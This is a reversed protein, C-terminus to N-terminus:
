NGSHLFTRKLNLRKKNVYYFKIVEKVTRNPLHAAIKVFDKNVKKFMQVFIEEESPLWASDLKHQTEWAKPNEMLRNDEKYRWETPGGARIQLPPEDALSRLYRERLDWPQPVPPPKYKGQMKKYVQMLEDDHEDAIVGYEYLHARWTVWRKTYEEELRAQERTLDHRAAKLHAKLQPLFAEHTEVNERWFSYELPSVIPESVPADAPMLLSEDALVETVKVRNASLIETALTTIDESPAPLPTFSPPPPPARLERKAQAGAFPLPSSLPVRPLSLKEKLKRLHAIETEYQAIEDDKEMISALLVEKPPLSQM